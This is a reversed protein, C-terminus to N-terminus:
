IHILSLLLVTGHTPRLENTLCKLLTSKGAGNPGLISLIQGSDLTFSVDKLVERGRTYYLSLHRACLIM